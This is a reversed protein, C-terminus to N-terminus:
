AQKINYMSLADDQLEFQIYDFLHHCNKNIDNLIIPFMDTM